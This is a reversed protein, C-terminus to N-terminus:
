EPEKVIHIPVACAQKLEDALERMYELHHELYFLLEQKRDILWANSAKKIGGDHDFGLKITLCRHMADLLMRDRMDEPANPMV